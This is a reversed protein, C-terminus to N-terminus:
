HGRGSRRGLLGFSAIAAILGTTPEPVSSGTTVDFFKKDIFATTNKKSIDALQDDLVASLGTVEGTIHDAALAANLDYVATGNWSGSSIGGGAKFTISDSSTSATAKGTITDTFTITPTVIIPNISHGNVSTIQLANSILTEQATTAKSGNLFSFAGGETITINGLSEGPLTPVESFQLRGDEFDTAVGTSSVAFDTASFALTNGTITPVGFLFPPTPGPQANDNEAVGNYTASTGTFDGYTVLAAQTTNAFPALAGVAACLAALGSMSIKSLQM